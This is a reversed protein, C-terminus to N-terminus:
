NGIILLPLTGKGHQKDFRVGKKMAHKGIVGVCLEEVSANSNKRSKKDLAVRVKKTEVGKGM